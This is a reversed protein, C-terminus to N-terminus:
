YIKIIKFTKVVRGGQLVKVFYTAPVLERMGITAQDGEIRESQLLRGQLDYLQYSPDTLAEREVKLQLYDRTPNPYALVSLHIGEGEEIGTVVSVEYPQQVGEAVTGATGAHTKCVAQGVTYSVTGGSGSASGGTASVGEQAQSGSLGLALM